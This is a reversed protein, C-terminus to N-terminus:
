KNAGGIRARARREELPIMASDNREPAENDLLITGVRVSRSNLGLTTDHGEQWARRDRDDAGAPVSSPVQVALVGAPVLFMHNSAFM